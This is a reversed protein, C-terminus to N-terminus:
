RQVFEARVISQASAPRRQRDLAHDTPLAEGQKWTAAVETPTRDGLGRHLRHHVSGGPKM